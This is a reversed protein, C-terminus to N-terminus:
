GGEAAELIDAHHFVAPRQIEPNLENQLRRRAQDAEHDRGRQRYHQM